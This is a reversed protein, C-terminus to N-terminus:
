MLIRPAPRGHHQPRRASIRLRTSDQWGCRLGHSWRATCVRIQHPLQGEKVSVSRSCANASRRSHTSCEDVAEGDLDPDDRGTPIPVVSHDLRQRGQAIVLSHREGVVSGAVSRRFCTQELDACGRGHGYATGSEPRRVTSLYSGSRGLNPHQSDSRM